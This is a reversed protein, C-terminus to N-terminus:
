ELLGGLKERLNTIGKQYQIGIMGMNNAVEVNKEKDDIFITESPTLQYKKILIEYIKREPKSVHEQYSYIGGQIHNLFDLKEQINEFTEKVINSLLYIHYQNSLEKLLNTHEKIEIVADKSIEKLLLIDFEKEFNPYEKKLYQLIEEVVVNGNLYERYIKKKTTKEKVLIDHAQNVRQISIGMKKACEQSNYEVLVNGIDFVINKIM